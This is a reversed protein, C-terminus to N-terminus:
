YLVGITVYKIDEFRLKIGDDNANNDGKTIDKLIDM